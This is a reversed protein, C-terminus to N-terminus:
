AALKVRLAEAEAILATLIEVHRVVSYDPAGTRRADNFTSEMDILRMVVPGNAQQPAYGLLRRLRKDRRYNPLATRAASALIRPRRLLAVQGLIDNM